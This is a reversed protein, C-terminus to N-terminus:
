VSSPVARCTSILVRLVARGSVGCNSASYTYATIPAFVPVPAALAKLATVTYYLVAPATVPSPGSVCASAVTPDVTYQVIITGSTASTCAAQSAYVGCSGTTASCSVWVSSGTATITVQNCGPTNPDNTFAVSGVYSQFGASLCVYM